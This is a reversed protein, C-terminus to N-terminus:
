SHDEQRSTCLEAFEQISMAQLEELTKGRFTVKRIEVM